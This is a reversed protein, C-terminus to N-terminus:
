KSEGLKDKLDRYMQSLFDKKTIGHSVFWQKCQGSRAQLYDLLDNEQLYSAIKAKGTPTEAYSHCGFKCVPLGNRWDHKLLLM